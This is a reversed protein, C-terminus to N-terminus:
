GYRADPVLLAQEGVRASVRGVRHLGAEYAALEDSGRVIRGGTCMLGM